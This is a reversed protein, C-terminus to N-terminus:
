PVPLSWFPFPEPVSLDGPRAGFISTVEPWESADRQASCILIPGGQTVVIIRQDARSLCRETAYVHVWGVSEYFPVVEKRCGLFGFDAGPKERMVKQARRMVRRGLGTGRSWDDILVGGTGAVVVDATGV